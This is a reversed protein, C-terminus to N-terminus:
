NPKFGILLEGSHSIDFGYNTLINEIYVSEIFAEHVEIAIIETFNLFNLNNSEFIDKEGGEIDIKLFHIKDNKFFCERIKDVSYGLVLGKEDEVVRTSWELNGLVIELNATKNWLAGNVVTINEKQELSLNKTILDYNSLEPEIAVIRSNPFIDHFYISTLGINAGADVINLRSLHDYGKRQLLKVIPYYEKELFVQNYVFWDSSPFKRLNILQNKLFTKKQLFFYKSDEEISISNFFLKIKM